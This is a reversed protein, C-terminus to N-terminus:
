DDVEWLHLTVPYGALGKAAIFKQIASHTREEQKQLEAVFINRLAPLMATTREESLGKMSRSVNAATYRCIFLNTVATFSYLIEQLPIIGNDELWSSLPSRHERLVLCKFRSLPPLFSCVIPTLYELGCHQGRPLFTLSLEASAVSSTQSSFVFQIDESHMYIDAQDFTGFTEIRSIFRPLESMNSVPENSRPFKIEMEELSPVDLRSVLDELFESTCCFQLSTLAPLVIRTPPPLSLIIRTLSPLVYCGARIPFDGAVFKLKLSELHKMPSLCTAIEEPTFNASPPINWLHIDVLDHSSLLLKPLGPFPIRGLCLSQLCPASGPLFSDPFIPPPTGGRYHQENSAASIDLSTLEPFPKQMAAVLRELQWSPVDSLKIDSVRNNHELAAIIDDVSKAGPRYIPKATHLIAIPLAPWGSILDRVPRSTTCVIHLDLYRPSAVIVYRWRQCVQALTCWSFWRFRPSEDLYSKFIERLVDDPLIGITSQQSLSAAPTDNLV